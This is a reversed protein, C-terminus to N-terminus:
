VSDKVRINSSIHVVSQTSSQAAGKTKSAAKFIEEESINNFYAPSLDVIPGHLLTEPLIQQAEPHLSRLKEVVDSTSPLVSNNASEDLFKLAQTVKGEFM